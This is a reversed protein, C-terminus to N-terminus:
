SIIDLFVRLYLISFFERNKDNVVDEINIAETKSLLNSILEFGVKDVLMKTESQSTILGGFEESRIKRILLELKGKLPLKKAEINQSDKSFFDVVKPSAKFDMLPDGARSDGSVREDSRWDIMRSWVTKIGGELVSGYEVNSNPCPRMRGGSSIMAFSSGAGCRKNEGFTMDDLSPIICLPVAVLTTVRMGLNKKIWILDNFVQLIEDKSLELLSFDQCNSPVGM